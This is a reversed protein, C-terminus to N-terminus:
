WAGVFYLDCSSYHYDFDKRFIQSTFELLYKVNNLIDAQFKFAELNEGHSFIIIKINAFKKSIFEGSVKIYEFDSQNESRLSTFYPYDIAVYDEPQNSNIQQSILQAENLNNIFLTKTEGSSGLVILVNKRSNSAALNVEKSSSVYNFMEENNEDHVHSNLSFSIVLIIFIVLITACVLFLSCSKKM